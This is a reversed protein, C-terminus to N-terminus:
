HPNADRVLHELAHIVVSGDGLAELEPLMRALEVDPDRPGRRAGQLFEIVGPTDPDATIDKTLPPNQDM